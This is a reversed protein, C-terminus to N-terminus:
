LNVKPSDFTGNAGIQVPSDVGDARLRAVYAGSPVRAFAFQVTTATTANAPIGNEPPPLLTTGRAPRGAPAGAETLSLTLQQERGVPPSITAVVHGTVLKVGEVTQTGTVAVANAAFSLTPRLALPVAESTLAAHPVAPDGLEVDQTVTFGQLGARLPPDFAAVPVRLETQTVNTPTASSAGVRVAVGPGSLARGTIVLTSTDTIPTNPPGDAAVDDIEPVETSVAATGVALVPFPGRAAVTSDILVVSVDYFASPRYPASFSAWLRAVEEGGPNAATIRLRELQDALRAQAFSAPITPDPPSPALM